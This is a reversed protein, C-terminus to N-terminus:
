RAEYSTLLEMVGLTGYQRYEVQLLGELGSGEFDGLLVFGIGIGPDIAAKM